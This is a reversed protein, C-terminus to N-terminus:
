KKLRCVFDAMKIATVAAEDGKNGYRGGAREESQRLTDTTLLGFVFPIDYQLNLATIGQTVGSCVCDFHPTEGRIVCGLVIVVDPERHEALQRAGFTLEFSGSVREVYMNKAKVGHRELTNCTGELLKETIAQNWESVIIGVRLSSADPISDFNYDSLNQYATAM